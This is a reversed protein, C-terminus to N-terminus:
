LCHQAGCFTGFYKSVRVRVMLYKMRRHRRLLQIMSSLESVQQVLNPVPEEFEDRLVEMTVDTDDLVDHLIAAIFAPEARLFNHEILM